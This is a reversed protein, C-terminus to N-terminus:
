CYSPLAPIVISLRHSLSRIHNKLWFYRIEPKIQLNFIGAWLQCKKWVKSTTLTPFFILTIKLGLCPFWLQKSTLHNLVLICLEIYQVSSKAWPNYHRLFLICKVTVLIELFIKDKVERAVLSWHYIEVWFYDRCWCGQCLSFLLLSSHLHSTHCSARRDGARTERPSSTPLFINWVQTYAQIKNRLQNCIRQAYAIPNFGLSFNKGGM